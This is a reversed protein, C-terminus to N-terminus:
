HAADADTSASAGTLLCQRAVSGDDDHAPNVDPQDRVTLSQKGKATETLPERFM